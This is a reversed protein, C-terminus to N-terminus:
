CLSSSTTSSSRYTSSGQGPQEHLQRIRVAAAPNNTPRASAIAYDLPM